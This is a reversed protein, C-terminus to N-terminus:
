FHSLVSPNTNKMRTEEKIEQISYQFVIPQDEGEEEM